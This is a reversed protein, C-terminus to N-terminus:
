ELTEVLGELVAAAAWGNYAFWLSSYSGDPYTELLLGDSPCYRESLVGRVGFGSVEPYLSVINVGWDIGDQCRTQHYADGTKDGLYKLESSVYVGMPHIHPNSTSTVSGGCSNWHSGKLPLAQPRAAFGYRWLYEYRAGDKLMELWRDDRTHAHLLQAGRIFGLNGEQDIAKWTDMPAGYCSLAVVSEHYHEMGRMAADLYKAEGTIQHLYTLAPAFWVGAFGDADCIAKQDVAYTYGFGGDPQQLDCITDLVKKAVDVWRNRPQNFHDRFLQYSKLLHYVATGNTYATHQGQVVYGSWWSDTGKGANPGCVDWLLGSAPNYAQAVWDLTYRAREIALTNDFAIGAALLPYAINGGGTWGIEELTRWATLQKKFGDRCAMNSFAAKDPQWNVNLFASVLDGAAQRATIPTAPTSRHTDYVDRVIDHAALRSAAANFYIAGQASAVMARHETPPGWQDKNLFTAPTNRYGLTVGCAAPRNDHALEAFVGNRIFGEDSSTADAAADSYPDISVGAILGDTILMSVPHSARDARFEWYPSCSVNGAYKVTLNPLHGPEAHDLANDGHIVLPILHFPNDAGPVCVSLRLRTLFTAHLDLTYRLIGADESISLQAKVGDGTAAFAAGEQQVTMAHWAAARWYSLEIHGTHGAASVVIRGANFSLM